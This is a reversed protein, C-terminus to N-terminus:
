RHFALTTPLIAKPVGHEAQAAATQCPAFLAEVSRPSPAPCHVNPGHLMLTLATAAFACCLILMIERM